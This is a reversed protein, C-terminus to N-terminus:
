IRKRKWKKKGNSYEGEFSLNGDYYEKGKGNRKGNLYEGEFIMKGNWYYEKGKGNRKGNLYEGEFLFSDNVGKYEKGIGNAGYIIYRGTFYKYNLISIDINKQFSKNYRIIKLKQKEDLHLFIIKIFYYSKINKLM